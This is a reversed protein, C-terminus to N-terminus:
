WQIAAVQGTAVRLSHLLSLHSVWPDMSMLELHKIIAHMGVPFDRYMINTLNDGERKYLSFCLM